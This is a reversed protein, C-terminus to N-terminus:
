AIMSYSNDLDTRSATPPPLQQDIIFENLQPYNRKLYDFEERTLSNRYDCDTLIDHMLTSQCEPIGLIWHPVLLPRKQLLVAKFHKDRLIALGMAHDIQICQILPAFADIAPDNLAAMLRQQLQRKYLTYSKSNVINFDSNIKIGMQQCIHKLVRDSLESFM